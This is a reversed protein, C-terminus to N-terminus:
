KTKAKIKTKLYETFSKDKVYKKAPKLYDMASLDAGKEILLKATEVDDNWIAWLLATEGKSNAPNVEAGKTILLQVINTKKAQSAIILPTENDNNKYNVDCYKELLFNVIDPNGNEVASMLVDSGDNEKMMPEAGKELLLKFMEFEGNSAAYILPTAGDVDQANIGLGKEILLKAIETNGTHAISHLLTRGYNNQVDLKAGNQFLYTFIDFYGYELATQIAAQGYCVECRSNIDAGNDLFLKIIEIKGHSISAAFAKNLLSQFNSFRDKTSLLLKIIEENGETAAYELLDFTHSIKKNNYEDVTSAKYQVNLDKGSKIYDSVFQVDGKEIAV